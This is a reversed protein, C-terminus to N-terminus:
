WILLWSKFIRISVFELCIPMFRHNAGCIERCQGYFLGGQDSIGEIINLRGPNADVKLGISPIAWSHLVDASRIIFRVLAGFPLVVRNDVELLRFEGVGLDSVPKIYSDFVVGRFDCFDYSWYWQHGRVKLSIDVNREREHSYLLLISPVGVIFLIFVPFCTWFFELLSDEFYYSWLFKNYVLYVLCYGVMFLIFVLFGIVFDHFCDLQFSVLSVINQLGFGGWFAIFFSPFKRQIQNSTL